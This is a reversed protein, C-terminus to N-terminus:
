PIERNLTLYEARPASPRVLTRGIADINKAMLDAIAPHAEGSTLVVQVKGDTQVNYVYGVAVLEEWDSHVVFVSVISDQFLLPSPALILLRKGSHSQAVTLVRPLAYVSTAKHSRYSFDILVILLVVGFILAPVAYAVPISSGAPAWYSTAFACVLGALGLVWGHVTIFSDYLAAWYSSNKV